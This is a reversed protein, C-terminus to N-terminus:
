HDEPPTQDAVDNNRRKTPKQRFAALSVIEAEKREDPSPQSASGEKQINKGTADPQYTNEGSAPAPVPSLHHLAAPSRDPANEQRAAPEHTSSHGGAPTFRLMLQLHPDAFAIVAQVPIRLISPVGGFSLGVSIIQRNRDVQLNRFQHQLVITMEDPYRERLRAPIEVGPIGTLFTIYFHHEGPLGKTGVYELARLMVDRQADNFWLDYPLLSESPPPATTDNSM